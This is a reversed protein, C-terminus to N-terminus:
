KKSHSRAEQAKYKLHTEYLTRAMRELMLSGQVGFTLGACYDSGSYSPDFVGIFKDVSEVFTEISALIEDITEKAPGIAVAKSIAKIPELAFKFNSLEKSDVHQTPCNYENFQKDSEKRMFLGSEFGTLFDGTLKDGMNIEFLNASQVAGFLLLSVVCLFTNMM